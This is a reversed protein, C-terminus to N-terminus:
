AAADKGPRAPTCRSKIWELLEGRIFVRRAYPGAGGVRHVPLGEDEIMRTLTRLDTVHLVEMAGEADLTDFPSAPKFRDVIM